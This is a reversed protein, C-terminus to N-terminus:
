ASLSKMVHLVETAHEGSDEQLNPSVEGALDILSLKSYTDEETIFNHSYIHITVIRFLAFCFGKDTSVRSDQVAIVVYTVCSVFVQQDINYSYYDCLLLCPFSYILSICIEPPLIQKSTAISKTIM